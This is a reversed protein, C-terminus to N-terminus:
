TGFLATSATLPSKSAADAFFHTSFYKPSMGRPAGGAGTSHAAFNSVPGIRRWRV